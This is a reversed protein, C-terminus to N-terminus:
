PLAKAPPSEAPLTFLEHQRTAPITRAAMRAVRREVVDDPLVEVIRQMWRRRTKTPKAWGHVEVRAVALLVPLTELERIKDLHKSVSTADTTQVFLVREGEKVAVIDALGFLDRRFGGAPHDPLRIFKEAVDATWGDARLVQLTRQTPSKRKRRRQTPSGAMVRGM